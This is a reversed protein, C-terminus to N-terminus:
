WILPLATEPWLACVMVQRGLLNQQRPLGASVELHQHGVAQQLHHTLLDQLFAHSAIVDEQHSCGSTLGLGMAEPSGRGRAKRAPPGLRTPLQAKTGEKGQSPDHHSSVHGSCWAAHKVSASM